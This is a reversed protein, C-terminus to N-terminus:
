RPKSKLELGTSAMTSMKVEEERFFGMIISLGAPEDALSGYVHALRGLFSIVIM